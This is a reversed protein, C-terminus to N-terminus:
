ATTMLREICAAHLAHLEAAEHNGAARASKALMAQDALAVERELRSKGALERSVTTWVKSVKSEGRKM